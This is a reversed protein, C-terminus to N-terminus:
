PPKATKPFIELSRKAWSTNEWFVKGPRFVYRKGGSFFLLVPYYFFRYM